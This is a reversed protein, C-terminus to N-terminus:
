KKGKKLAKTLSNPKKRAVKRKKRVPKKKPPSGLTLVYIMAKM